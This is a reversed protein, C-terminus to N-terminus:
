NRRLFLESSNVKNNKECHKNNKECYCKAYNRWKPKFFKPRAFIGADWSKQRTTIRKKEKTPNIPRMKKYLNNSIFFFYVCMM